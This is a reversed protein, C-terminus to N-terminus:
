DTGWCGWVDVGGGEDVGVGVGVEAVDEVRVIEAVGDASFLRPQSNLSAPQRYQPLQAPLTFHPKSKSYM